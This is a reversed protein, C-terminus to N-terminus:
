RHWCSSNVEVALHEAQIRVSGAIEIQLDRLVQQLSESAGDVAAVDAHLPVVHLDAIQLELLLHDGGYRRREIQVPIQDAEVLVHARALLLDGGGLLEQVVVLSLHLDARQRLDFDRAGFRLEVGALLVQHNRLGIQLLLLDHQLVRQAAIADGRGPELVNVDHREVLNPNWRAVIDTRDRLQDILREPVSSFDRRRADIDFAILHVQHADLVRQFGRQM